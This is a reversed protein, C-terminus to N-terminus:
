YIIISTDYSTQNYLWAAQDERINVCGHTGYDASVNGSSDVHYYQTGPGYDNRWWSDHLYYGGEHYLIAYNIKTPEYYYPSGPPYPSHFTINTERWLPRWLGPVTPLEPRGATVLFGKVLKGDQYLRLSQEITSVVIVQGKMLNYHQLLETDTKHVQDFPTKDTFDQELMHLHFIENQTLTVVQQYDDMTTAASLANDLDEGIGKTMYSNDLPYNKGDYTDHYLHANGWDNVEKHFQSVLSMAQGKVLDKQMAAMDADIKKSFSLFDQMTKVQDGQARDADLSKQYATVDIGEQQMTKVNTALANVRSDVMDPILSQYQTALAQNQDNIQQEIKQLSSPTIAKSIANNDDDYQKQQTSIDQHDNKLQQIVDSYTKLTSMTHPLMSLTNNADRAHSTVTAFQAPTTAKNFQATQQDYVQSVAKIPVGSSQNLALAKQLSLLDTQAQGKSQETTVQIVAQTQLTLQQYRTVLNQFYTTAPQSNFFTWPVHTQDLTQKQLAITHLATQPVGITQAQQLTQQLHAQDQEAQQQVPSANGCSSLLLTVASMCLLFALLTQVSYLGGSRRQKRWLFFCDM